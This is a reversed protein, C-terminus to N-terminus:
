KDKRTSFTCPRFAGLLWRIGFAMALRGERFAVLVLKTVLRHIVSVCVHVALIVLGHVSGIVRRYGIRLPV